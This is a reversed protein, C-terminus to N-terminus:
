FKPPNEFGQYKFRSQMKTSMELLMLFLEIESYRLGNIIRKTEDLAKYIKEASEESLDQRIKHIHKYDLITM